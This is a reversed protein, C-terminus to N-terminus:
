AGCSTKLVFHVMRKDDGEDGDTSQQAAKDAPSREAFSVLAFGIRLRSGAVKDFQM